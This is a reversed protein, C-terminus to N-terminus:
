YYGLVLFFVYEWTDRLFLPLVADFGGQAAHFLAPNDECDCSTVFPLAKRYGGGGWCLLAGEIMRLFFTGKQAELPNYPSGM